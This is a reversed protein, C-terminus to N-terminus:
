FLPEEYIKKGNIMLGSIAAQGSKSIRAIVSIQTKDRDLNELKLAQAKPAFYREIGYSVTLGRSSASRVSGKITIIGAKEPPYVRHTSIAQWFGDAGKELRVFVTDNRKVKLGPKIPPNPAEAIDFNLRAYHGRFFDRPDVPKTKLLVETGNTLIKLREGVMYGLALTLVLLVALARVGFPISRIAFPRKREAQTSM